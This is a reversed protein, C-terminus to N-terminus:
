IAYSWTELFYIINAYKLMNFFIEFYDKKNKCINKFKIILKNFDHFCPRYKLVVLFKIKNTEILILFKYM